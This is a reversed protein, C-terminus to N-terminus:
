GTANLNGYYSVYGIQISGGVPHRKPTNHSTQGLRSSSGGPDGSLDETPVVSSCDRLGIGQGEPPLELLGMSLNISPSSGNPHRNSSNFRRPEVSFRGRVPM